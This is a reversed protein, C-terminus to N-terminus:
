QNRQRLSHNPVQEEVPPPTMYDGYQISLYSDYEKTILLETDEFRHLICCEMLNSPYRTNLLNFSDTYGTVYRTAKKNGIQAVRQYWRYKRESSFPLGLIKTGVLFFKNILSIKGESEDVKMMGQLIKILLVKIKRIFANDPCNDMVFMDIAADRPDKSDRLHIRDVWIERRIGYVGAKKEDLLIARAKEFNERDLMIDMDDDWPIFGNHRVAGLLSGGCLSYVIGEERFLKDVWKIMALLEQHCAKISTNIPQENM